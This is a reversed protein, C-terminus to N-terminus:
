NSSVHRLAGWGGLAGYSLMEDWRTHKM